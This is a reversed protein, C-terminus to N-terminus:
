LQPTLIRWDKIHHRRLAGIQGPNLGINLQYALVRSPTNGYMRILTLLKTRDAPLIISFCPHGSKTRDFAHRADANVLFHVPARGDLEVKLLRNRNKLFKQNAASEPNDTVTTLFATKVTHGKRRKLFKTKPVVQVKTTNPLTEALRSKKDM